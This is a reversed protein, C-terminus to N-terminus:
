ANMVMPMVTITDCSYTSSSLKGVAQQEQPERLSTPAPTVVQGHHEHQRQADAPHRPNRRALLDLREGVQGVAAKVARPGPLRAPESRSSRAAARRTSM